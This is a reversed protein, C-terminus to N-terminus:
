LESQTHFIGLIEPVHGLLDPLVVIRVVGFRSGHLEWGWGLAVLLLRVYVAVYLLLFM